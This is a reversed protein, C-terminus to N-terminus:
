RFFTLQFGLTVNGPAQLAGTVYWWEIATEPHSGLDCPFQLPRPLLPACSGAPHCRSSAVGRGVHCGTCREAM